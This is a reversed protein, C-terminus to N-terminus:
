SRAGIAISVNGTGNTGSSMAFRLGFRIWMLSATGGPTTIVPM